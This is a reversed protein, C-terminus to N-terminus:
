GTVKVGDFSFRGAPGADLTAVVSSPIPGAPSHRQETTSASTRGPRQATMTAVMQVDGGPKHGARRM